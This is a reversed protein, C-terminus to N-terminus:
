KLVEIGKIHSHLDIDLKFDNCWDVCFSEPLNRVYCLEFCYESVSEYKETVHNDLMISVLGWCTLVIFTIVFITVIIDITKLKAKKNKM